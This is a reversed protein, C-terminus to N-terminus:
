FRLFKIVEQLVRFRDQQSYFLMFAMDKLFLGSLFEKIPFIRILFQQLPFHLPDKGGGNGDAPM